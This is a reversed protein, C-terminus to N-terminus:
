ACKYAYRIQSNCVQIFDTLVNYVNRQQPTRKVQLLKSLDQMFLLSFSSIALLSVQDEVMEKVQSKVLKLAAFLM